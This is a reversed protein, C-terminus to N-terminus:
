EDKFNISICGSLAADIIWGNVFYVHINAAQIIIIIM